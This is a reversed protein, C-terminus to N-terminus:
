GHSTGVWFREEKARRITLVHPHERVDDVRVYHLRAFAGFNGM